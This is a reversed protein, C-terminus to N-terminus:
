SKTVIARILNHVDVVKDKYTEGEADLLKIFFKRLYPTLSEISFYRKAVEEIMFYDPEIKVGTGYEPDTTSNTFFAFVGGNKLIRYIEDFVQATTKQDFYHLSLHAYIIDFSEDDFELPKRLDVVRTRIHEAVETPALSVTKNVTETFLDTATVDYGKKAFYVSDQGVGTGLDLLSGHPPFYEIAETAFISPLKSWDKEDYKKHLKSWNNDSM